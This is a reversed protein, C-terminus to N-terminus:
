SSGAHNKKLEELQKRLEQMQRLLEQHVKLDAQRQDYFALLQGAFLTMYLDGDPGLQRRNAKRDALTHLIMLEQDSISNNIIKSWLLIMKAPDDADKGKAIESALHQATEVSVEKVPWSPQILFSQPAQLLLSLLLLHV